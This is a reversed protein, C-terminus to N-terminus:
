SRGDASGTECFLLRNRGAVAFVHNNPPKPQFFSVPQSGQDLAAWFFLKLLAFLLLALPFAGRRVKKLLYKIFLLLAGPTM